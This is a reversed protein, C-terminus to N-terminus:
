PMGAPEWAPKPYKQVPQLDDSQQLQAHIHTTCNLSFLFNRYDNWWERLQFLLQHLRWVKAKMVANIKEQGQLSTKSSSLM